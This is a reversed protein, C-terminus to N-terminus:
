LTDEGAHDVAGSPTHAAEEEPEELERKAVEQWRFCRVKRSGLVDMFNPRAERCHEGDTYGCRPEFVCGAPLSEPSPVQGHISYIRVTEKSSSLTPVCRLLSKAYPHLPNLFLDNVDAEEVMEGAYMVAVRDCVRAVVGLNHSIYLIASDLQTRLNRILDLVAAAVTVDLATTPEDMILLDPNCLLAMAIVVRQQQGGSIQHPYRDLVEEPDPMNVTRLVEVCQSYAQKETMGHHVTLVETLQPGIKLCPNLTTMPDQYVMALRNGRLERLQNDRMELVNQGEFLVRGSSARANSGLYAMVALATTSKGCGSEGVLGLAEGRKVSFSLNRVARVEGRKTTYTVSLDEVSLVTEKDKTTRSCEM